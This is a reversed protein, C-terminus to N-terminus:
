SLGYSGNKKSKLYRIQNDIDHTIAATHDNDTPEVPIEAQLLDWLVSAYCFKDTGPMPKIIGKDRMEAFKNKGIGVFIEPLRYFAGFHENHPLVKNALYEFIVKTKISM